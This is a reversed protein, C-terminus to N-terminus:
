FFAWRSPLSITKTSSDPMLSRGRTHTSPCGLSLSGDDLKVEIPSVDRDDGAQRAGVTQEPKVFAADLLFLKDIEEFRELGMELLGQQHDPVSGPRVVAVKHAVVEVTQIPIDLNDKQWGVRGVEIRDFIQPGPELSVRQGIVTGVIQALQVRACAVFELARLLAGRDNGSAPHLSCKPLTM